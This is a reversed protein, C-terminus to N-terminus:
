NEQLSNEYRKVLKYFTSKTLKLRTFAEVATINKSEWQRYVKDWEDPYKAKPRGLHKNQAKALAIGEAQRQRIDEREKQAVFALVQLVLRSVFDGLTDKYLTTDLLPMDLVKIDIQLVETLEEWEKLIEKSNRGFRDISKIYLLDGPRLCQKLVQYKERSFDKGSQKDVFIDRENVGIELMEKMQRGINQEKTSVRIYGFTKNNM